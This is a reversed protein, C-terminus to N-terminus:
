PKDFRLLEGPLPLSRPDYCPLDDDWHTWSKPILRTSPVGESWGTGSEKRLVVSCSPIQAVDEEARLKWEYLTAELGESIAESPRLILLWPHRATLIAQDEPQSRSLTRVTAGYERAVRLTHDTSGLDLVLVEDCARLSELARGLRLADNRTQLIATIPPM